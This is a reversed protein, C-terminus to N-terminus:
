AFRSVHKKLDINQGSEHEKPFNALGVLREQLVSSCIYTKILKLMSFSEEGSVVSVPLSLFIHIAIFINPVYDTLKSKCVFNLIDQSSACKQVQRAPM